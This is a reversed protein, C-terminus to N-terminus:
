LALAMAMMKPDINGGSIVCVITEGSWKNGAKLLAALAVAGGPEVVLKLEHFAFKVALLAEEDSVTLGEALLSRNIQFGIEGPSETLLADCISGSKELNEVREGANLSRRYDDFGEPEVSHIKVNKFHHDLALALGSTLGGGGTCVLARHLNIAKGQNQGQLQNAIELGTTGQGAIVNHNDYPHIYTAGTDQCINSAIADRDQKDRDYIKVEAGARRTRELKIIPSDHPMVITAKIDMLRAAEAVGQAHNGSSCAVVGYKRKANEIMSIANYAGRFKFSGTRQLSEPKIFINAGTIKNLQQNQLLPTKIVTGKIREAANLVDQYDPINKM